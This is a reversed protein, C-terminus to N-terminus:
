SMRSYPHAVNISQNFEWMFQHLFDLVTTVFTPFVGNPLFSFM